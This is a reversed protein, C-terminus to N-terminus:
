AGHNAGNPTENFSRKFEYITNLTESFSQFTDAHRSFEDGTATQMGVLALQQRELAWAAFDNFTPNANKM